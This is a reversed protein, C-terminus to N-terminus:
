PIPEVRQGCALCTVSQSTDYGDGDPDDATWDQVQRTRTPAATSSRRMTKVIQRM